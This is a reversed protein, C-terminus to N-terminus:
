LLNWALCGIVVLLVFLGFTRKLRQLLPRIEYAVILRDRQVVEAPKTWLQGDYWGSEEYFITERLLRDSVYNWGLYLRLLALAPVLCAGAAASLVFQAPHKAIPFSAAAIPAAIVWSLSWLVAIPTVYSHLSLTAWRFYWSEKLDQYENIPQQEAPVPCVSVSSKMNPAPLLTSNFSITEISKLRVSSTLFSGDGAVKTELEVVLAGSHGSARAVPKARARLM